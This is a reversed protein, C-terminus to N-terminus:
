RRERAGAGLIWGEEEVCLRIEAPTLHAPPGFRAALEGATDQRRLWTVAARVQARDRIVERPDLPEPIAGPWIEAHLIAPGAAPIPETTFGTEFPWIRSCDRLGPDDRLAAVAPIGMLTQGGVSAPYMIKWVSQIKPELRDARRLRELRVGSRTEFPFPPSHTSLAALPKGAPRGWLPGPIAQMCRSNLEAAVAFRNNTNEPGDQVLRRLENWIRRWAPGEGNLGLAAAFGAPYGYSFDFSILVRRREAVLDLLRSRLFESCASRTRWYTERVPAAPSGETRAAEGVWVADRSPRKPTVAETASWDVAIYHDFLRGGGSSSEM